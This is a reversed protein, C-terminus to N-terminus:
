NKSSPYILDLPNSFPKTILSSIHLYIMTTRIDEHGLLKQITLLNVGTSLLHSAFSHRLNHLSVKKTIVAREVAKRMIWATSELSIITGKKRGNFLYHVPKETKIYNRLENLVDYSLISYRGKKGKGQRIKVQMNKSDIDTILLNCAECRRLGASYILKLFARHKNNRTSDFLRKLEDSNLIEPLYKEKKPYPIDSVIDVRKLLYKFLYKIGCAAIRMTDRSLGREEKLYVLFAYIDDSKISSFPKKCFLVLQKAGHVYGNITSKALNHAVMRNRMKELLM